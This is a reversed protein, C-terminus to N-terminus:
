GEPLGGRLHHKGPGWQATPPSAVENGEIFFAAAQAVHVVQEGLYTGERRSCRDTTERARESEEIEEEKGSDIIEEEGRQSERDRGERLEGERLRERGRVTLSICVPDIQNLGPMQM